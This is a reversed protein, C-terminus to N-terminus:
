PNLERTEKKYSREMNWRSEGGGGGGSKRERRRGGLRITERKGGDRKGRGVERVEERLRRRDGERWVWLDSHSVKQCRSILDTIKEASVYLQPFKMKAAATDLWNNLKIATVNLWTQVKKRDRKRNETKKKKEKIHDGVEAEESLRVSVLKM